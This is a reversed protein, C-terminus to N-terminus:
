SNVSGGKGPVWPNLTKVQRTKLDVSCTKQRDNVLILKGAELRISRIFVWQVDQEVLPGIWIRYVAKKWLFKGSAAESAVAHGVTGRDNPVSFKVGEFIIPEIRPVMARKDLTKLSHLFALTAIILALHRM